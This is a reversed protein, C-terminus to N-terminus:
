DTQKLTNKHELDLDLEAEALFQPATRGCNFPSFDQRVQPLDQRNM